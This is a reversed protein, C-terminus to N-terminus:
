LTGGKTKLFAAIEEYKKSQAWWLATSGDNKGRNNLDAGNGVLLQIVDMHGGGAAKILPTLWYKDKLNVDAGAEVLIKAVEFHGAKASASLATEEYNDMDKSNVDAGNALAARVGAIDGKAAAKWLQGSIEDM